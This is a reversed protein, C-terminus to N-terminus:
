SNKLKNGLDAYYDRLDKEKVNFAEDIKVCKQSIDKIFVDWEAKRREKNKIITTDQVPFFSFLELFTQM